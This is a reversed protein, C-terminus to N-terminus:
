PHQYLDLVQFIFLATHDNGVSVLASTTIFSSSILIFAAPQPSYHFFFFGSLTKVYVNPLMSTRLNYDPLQTAGLQSGDGEDRCIM